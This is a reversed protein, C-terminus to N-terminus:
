ILKHAHLIDGNVLDEEIEKKFSKFNKYYLDNVQKTLTVGLYKINNTVKTFPTTETYERETQLRLGNIM